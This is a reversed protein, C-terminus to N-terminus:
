VDPPLKEERQDWAQTALATPVCEGPHESLYRKAQPSCLWTTLPLASALPMPATQTVSRPELGGNSNLNQAERKHLMEQSNQIQQPLVQYPPSFPFLLPCPLQISPTLSAYDNFSKEPLFFFAEIIDNNYIIPVTNTLIINM